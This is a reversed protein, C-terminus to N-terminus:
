KEEEIIAENYEELVNSLKEKIGKCNPNVEVEMQAKKLEDELKKVSMFLNGKKWALKNLPLKMRKMKKVLKYMMYGDCVDIFEEKDAVFNSFRFSKGM